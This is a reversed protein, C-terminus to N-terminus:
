PCIRPMAQTGNIVATSDARAPEGQLALGVGALLAFVAPAPPSRKMRGIMKELQGPRCACNRHTRQVAVVGEGHFIELRWGGNRPAVCRLM